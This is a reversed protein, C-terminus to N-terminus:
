GAFQLQRMAVFVAEAALEWEEDGGDPLAFGKLTEAGVQAMEKTVQIEDAPRDREPIM